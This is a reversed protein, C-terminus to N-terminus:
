KNSQMKAKVKEFVKLQQVITEKMKEDNATLQTLKTYWSEKDDEALLYRMFYYSPLAWPHNGDNKLVQYYLNAAKDLEANQFYLDGVDMLINIDDHKVSVIKAYLELAKELEGAARYNIAQFILLEEKPDLKVAKDGLSIAKQYQGIKRYYTSAFGLVRPNEPNAEIVLEVFSLLKSFKKKEAEYNPNSENTFSSNILLM